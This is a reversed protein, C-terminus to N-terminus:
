VSHLNMVGFASKKLDKAAGSERNADSPPEAGFVDADIRGALGPAATM